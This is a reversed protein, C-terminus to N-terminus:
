STFLSFFFFLVTSSRTLHFSSYFFFFFPSLQLPFAPLSFSPTHNQTSHLSLFHDLTTQLTLPFPHFFYRPSSLFKHLHNFLSHHPNGALTTLVKRLEPCTPTCLHTYTPTLLPPVLFPLYPPTFEISTTTSSVGTIINLFLHHPYNVSANTHTPM